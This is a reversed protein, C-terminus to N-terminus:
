PWLEMVLKRVIRITKDILLYLNQIDELIEISNINQVGTSFKQKLLGLDIKIAILIQGINDHLERALVVKEEERTTNLHVAFQKVQELSNRLALESQSQETIDYLTVVIQQLNNHSDFQPFANVKLWIKNDPSHRDLGLIFNEIPKGTNLVCNVPYEEVSLLLGNEHYFHLSNLNYAEGNIFEQSVGLMKVALSNYLIIRSDPSYVLIGVQLHNFLFRQEEEKYLLVEASHKEEQIYLLRLEIQTKVRERVEEYNFPKTIYDKCGSNFLKTKDLHEPNDIIFIVPIGKLKNDTKLSNCMEYGNVEMMSIDILILDPYENQIVKLAVKGSLISHINYEDQSLIGSLIQINEPSDDIILINM